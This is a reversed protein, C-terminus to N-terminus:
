VRMWLNTLSFSSEYQSNLILSFLSQNHLVSVAIWYHIGHQIGKQKQFVHNWMWWWASILARVSDMCYKYSPEDSTNSTNNTVSVLVQQFFRRTLSHLVLWLFLPSWNEVSNRRSDDRSLAQQLKHKICSKWPKLAMLTNRTLVNNIEVSQHEWIGFPPLDEETYVDLKNPVNLLVAKIVYNYGKGAQWTSGMSGCLILPFRSVTRRLSVFRDEMEFKLMTLGLAFAEPLDSTKM